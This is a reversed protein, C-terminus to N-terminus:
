HTSDSDAGTDSSLLPRETAQGGRRDARRGARGVAKTKKGERDKKRGEQTARSGVLLQLQRVLHSPLLCLLLLCCGQPATRWVCLLLRLSSRVILRGTGVGSRSRLCSGSHLGSTYTAPASANACHLSALSRSLSVEVFQPAAPIRSPPNCRIAPWSRVALDACIGTCSRQPM